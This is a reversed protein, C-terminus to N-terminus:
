PSAILTESPNLFFIKKWGQPSNDWRWPYPVVSLITYHLHPPKGKANGSDGLTGITQSTNVFSGIGTDISQLHAYYHIRWKPGLVIVVDGGLNLQGTFVVIGYTSSIVPTGRPSFIDIGKHVGSRGWPEFWFTDHNWDRETARKVPIVQKEPLLFGAFLVAATLAAAIAWKKGSKSLPLRPPVRLARSVRRSM